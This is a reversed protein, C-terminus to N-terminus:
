SRDRLERKLVKGNANRPLPVTRIDFTEPVKYDSLRPACHAALAAAELGEGRAVVVAHVREGLVPCPRAVVASEIVAPHGALVTEVEASYVKFGGRNIMDKKRDLVSLFGEADLSGLDGSRWYGAVFSEATAAANGRYGPVVSPGGIWVEGVEGPPLARGQEDMVLISVGPVARGVKDAHARTAGPPMLVAPSTTETAGYANVLGLGPLAAALADITPVPMPAGGYGGVRWAALDYEAFRPHRLCLAYMAPVMVTHTMRERAALSLFAEASFAPLVVLTGAVLAMTAIEAVLGTVHSLPVAAVSRDEPGLQLCHAYVLASHVIGLHTLMAGKPRGTTGSTYLIVATEDEGVAAVPPLPCRTADALFTTWPESGDALGGVSLRAALTAPAGVPPVRDALDHDHVLLRAGSDALAYEVEPLQMRIGLPVPVAGLRAAAHVAIVMEPRNSLLLAIRDGSALGRAALGAAVREVSAQLSRWGLRLDGCVLAETDPRRRAAEALLAYLSAPREPFCAVVRDGFHVEARLAPAIGQWDRRSLWNDVGGGTMPM